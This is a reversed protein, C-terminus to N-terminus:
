FINSESRRREPNVLDIGTDSRYHSRDAFCVMADGLRAHVPALVGAAFWARYHDQPISVTYQQLARLDRQAPRPMASIRRLITEADDNFPVVVSKHVDDILRFAEALAEFDFTFESRDCREAISNLVSWNEGDRRAADMADAGRRWYVESFYSKTGEISLPDIGQRFVSEAAEILPRLGRPPKGQSSEFVVVRGRNLRGERNCRGAAQAISDLGATARWVEPFDIDVGAEILSTAVLRVPAGQVLRKRIEDLVMRRHQACMLTSLHYAGQSTRRDAILTDFLSRAHARTNVICLMQEQQAFRSAIEHDETIGPRRVVDVRKLSDFLGAPDPALERTEDIDFGIKNRYKSDSFGDCVRLAPQTATCLVISTRYNTALEELAAMCPLLLQLPLTQAEDLIVVSEPINHLKRCKSTRNSYLSEFFQVATTVVIPVDWNEAARRLMSLDQQGDSDATGVEVHKGWDFSAHHELIDDDTSLANRFIAATQEIISTYPIVYIVRKLGHTIAHELAFALSTLTKGGGTPVTLTFMGMGLNAKAAVHKLVKSRLVNLSTDSRSIQQLHATLRAHLDELSAFQGRQTEGYFRETELFDADVLCSFLMRTLFQESFGSRPNPTLRRVAKLRSTAPIQGVSREWGDYPELIKDETRRRLEPYDALGAHHGAIIFALMRGLGRPLTREAERAGATSHDPGKHGSEPPSKIYTQYAQSAKGIDHLLGAVSAVGGCGFPEAFSGARSAVAQSHEGLTEWESHPRGPLSHAYLVPGGDMRPVDDAIVRPDAQLPQKPVMEPIWGRLGGGEM